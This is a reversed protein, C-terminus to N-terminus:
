DRYTTADPPSPISPRGAQARFNKRPVHKLKDPSRLEGAVRTEDRLAYNDGRRACAARKRMRRWGARCIRSDGSRCRGGSFGHQGRTRMPSGPTKLRLQPRAQSAFTIAPRWRPKCWPIFQAQRGESSGEFLRDGDEKGHPLRRTGSRRRLAHGGCREGASGTASHWASSPM